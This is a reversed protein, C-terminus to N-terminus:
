PNIIGMRAASKLSVALSNWMKEIVRTMVCGMDCKDAISKAGRICTENKFEGHIAMKFGKCVVPNIENYVVHKWKGSLLACHTIAGGGGFLDYFWEASPLFGIINEAIKNKSGKYPMGYRRM